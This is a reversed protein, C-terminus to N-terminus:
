GKAECKRFYDQLIRAHDFALTQPIEDRSFVGVADADDAAEPRGSGRAVFVVSITHQRPDREPDSYAGLQCILEIRLSTEELAERKAATELSEGYDVFGGPLAWGFPPNKRNILVIRKPEQEPGQSVGEVKPIEIIVDVTPLPNRFKEVTGGCHPCELRDKM